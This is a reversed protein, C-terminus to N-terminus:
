SELDTLADSAEEFKFRFGEALLRKPVVRRSKIILETETRLFFAGIELMWRTSPLGIPNGVARRLAKMFEANPLPNPAALNYIGEAKENAILWDLARCFDDIHIWSFYQRGDANKGGLGLKALLHLIEYPGGKGRGLVIATRLISKRTMPAKARSFEEEWARAVEISYADKAEPSAGIAGDEGHPEGFTHKYITATSSNLWVAPPKECAAVAEGLVRTSLTRSEMMQRRNAATYRCNVSRGALNILARAGELEAAWPGLTRGDWEVIRAVDSFGPARSLIVVDDGRAAFPGALCKGLFGSGGAIVIKSSKM